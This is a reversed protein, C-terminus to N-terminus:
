HRISQQWQKSNRKNARQEADTAWRTNDPCYNGDVNIRDITMGEPREGMDSLFNEFSELWEPCITIGRGGYNKYGCHNPNTCRQIMGAWSNYTKSHKIRSSHGHKLAQPKERNICGCSKTHGTIIKPLHAHVYGGCECEAIAYPLAPKNVDGDARYSSVMRITLRGFKENIHKNM